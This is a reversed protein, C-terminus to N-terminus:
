VEETDESAIMAPSERESRYLLPKLAEVMKACEGSMSEDRIMSLQSALTVCQSLEALGYQRKDLGAIQDILQQKLEAITAM